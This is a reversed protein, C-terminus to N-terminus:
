LLDERARQGRLSCRTQLIFLFVHSARKLTVNTCAAQVLALVLGGEPLPTKKRYALVLRAPNVLPLIITHM